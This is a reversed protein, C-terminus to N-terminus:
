FDDGDYNLFTRPLIQNSVFSCWPVLFNLILSSTLIIWLHVPLYTIRPVAFSFNLTHVSISCTIQTLTGDYNLCMGFLTMKSTARIHGFIQMSAHSNFFLVIIDLNRDDPIQRRTAQYFNESTESSQLADMKLIWTIGPLCRALLLCWSHRLWTM